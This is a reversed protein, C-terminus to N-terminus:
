SQWSRPSPAREFIECYCSGDREIEIAAAGCPCTTNVRCLCGPIGDSGKKNMARLEKIKSDFCPNCGFAQAKRRFYDFLESTSDFAPM